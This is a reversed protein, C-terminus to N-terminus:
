TDPVLFSPSSHGQWYADLASRLFEMVNRGTQSCTALTTWIRESWARGKASRTGQTIRRDIVVFRIAQEALNNTPDVGPTTIFQFFAEGHKEFRRAMNRADRSSPVRQTAIRIIKKRSAALRRQITKETLEGRRHIVGFMERIAKLLRRGYARTKKDSLETLYKVDRILHALCFQVRLNLERMYKRYANFYDCGLVGNFEDGLVRYLVESGRSPDISFLTFLDARFCWTWWRKGKDKHGTEDARVYPQTPLAALLEEYAPRLSQATKNIVKALQGRSIEIQLVDRFFRQITSFSCHCAGKLYAVLATLKPGLLGGKAVKPPLTAYHVKQCRRCWYAVARHEIVETPPAVIEVQQVVKPPKNSASLRGGCEPCKDLTYPRTDKIQDPSFAPREHKAHGPQGGPKRKRRGNPRPKPKKVIDSSPPKSSNSSNKHAAALQQELQEIRQTLLINQQTLQTNQQTLQEVHQTLQAIIKNQEDITNKLRRIAQTQTKIRRDKANM